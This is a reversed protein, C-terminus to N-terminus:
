QESKSGKLVAGEEAPGLGTESGPETSGPRDRNDGNDTNERNEAPDQSETIDPFPSKTPSPERSLDEDGIYNLASETSFAKELKKRRGSSKSRVRARAHHPTNPQSTPSVRGGEEHGSALQLEVQGTVENCTYVEKDIMLKDYRLSM